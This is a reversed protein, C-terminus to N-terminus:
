VARDWCCRGNTVEAATSVPSAAMGAGSSVSVSCPCRPARIARDHIPVVRECCVVPAGLRSGDRDHSCGTVGGWWPRQAPEFIQLNTAWSEASEQDPRPNNVGLNLAASRPVSHRPHSYRERETHLHCCHSIAPSHNCSSPPSNLRHLM